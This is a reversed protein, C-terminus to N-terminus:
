RGFNTDTLTVGPPNPYKKLSQNYEAVIRFWQAIVWANDGGISIEERPDMEINYIDPGGNKGVQVGLLGEQRPNNFSATNAKPYIRYHRWRVAAIDNNVFTIQHDRNSKAQKGLFFASQDVGDYPRDTPLNAGIISALTPLFDQIAVMENSKGPKIKGPWKIMGVTRISGELPDGLEGRFPANSGGKDPWPAADPSAGNDSLWIVITNNEIGAQKIADLVQGTRYDLEMMADGYRHSSKGTFEPATVSPYHTHTWGVYLFFPKSEKAQRKIYDVSAQTIDGEIQRRYDVTYERVPKLHGKADSEYIRPVTKEIETEPIGAREMNARYLTSESTEIVGVHYEDFGQRTPWSQEESGLHWKGVIGTNYDMSKFLEGLTFEEDQLTNKLGGLIITGLGSRVSYRGTMLAARSPTSGPEVLFQTLQMGEAALQDLNPTPMGRTEGGGYTGIDGYGVNDALMLVVNPKGQSSPSTAAKATGVGAVLHQLIPHDNDGAVSNVTTAVGSILLNTAGFACLATM